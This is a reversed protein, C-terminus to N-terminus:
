KKHYKNYNKFIKKIFRLTPFVYIVMSGFLGFVFSSIFSDSDMEDTCYDCGFNPFYVSQFFKSIVIIIIACSLWILSDRRNYLNPKFIQYVGIIFGIISVQFVTFIYYFWIITFVSQFINM